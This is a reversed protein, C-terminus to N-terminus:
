FFQVDYLQCRALWTQNIGGRTTCTSNKYSLVSM